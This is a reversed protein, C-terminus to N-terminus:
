SYDQLRSHLGQQLINAVARAHQRFVGTKCNDGHQRQSEPNARVGCNERNHVGFQKARKREM